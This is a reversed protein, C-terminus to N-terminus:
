DGHQRELVHGAIRLLLIEGVANGLVDDGRKGLDMPQEHDRPIRREGVLARRHVHDTDGAFEANSVDDLAADALGPVVCSNGKGSGSLGDIATSGKM